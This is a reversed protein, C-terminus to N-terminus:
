RLLPARPPIWPPIWRPCGRPARPLSLEAFEIGASRDFRLDGITLSGDPQEVFFPFRAYRLFAYADCRKADRRLEDLPLRVEATILLGGAADAGVPTRRRATYGDESLGCARSAIVSPALSLRALRSVLEGKPSVSASVIAVCLPDAPLTTVGIDAIREDPYLRTLESEVRRKGLRATSLFLGLVALTAVAGFVARRPRSLRFDLGISCVITASVGVAFLTPVMGSVFPLVVTLAATLAVLARGVRSHVSYLLAPLMVAWLFPEVIFIADGYIWGDYLPWFPHVGYSNGYDMAIHLMPGALALGFLVNWDSRSRAARSRFRVLAYLAGGLLLGVLLTHTHGRHHLLYGLKGPTIRAYLFDLDPLNNAAASVFYASRVFGLAPESRGRTVVLEAVLLGFLTHTVNDM